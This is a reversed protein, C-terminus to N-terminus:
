IIEYAEPPEGGDSAPFSFSQVCSYRLQAGLGRPELRAYFVEGRTVVRSNLLYGLKLVKLYHAHNASLVHAYLLEGREDTSTVGIRLSM